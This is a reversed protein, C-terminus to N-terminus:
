SQTVNALKRYNQTVPQPPTTLLSPSSLTPTQEAQRKNPESRWVTTQVDIKTICIYFEWNLSREPESLSSFAMVAM